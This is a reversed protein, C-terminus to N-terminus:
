SEKQSLQEHLYKKYTWMCKAFIYYTGQTPSFTQVDETESLLLLDIMGAVVQQKSRHVNISSFNKFVQNDYYIYNCHIHDNGADEFWSKNEDVRKVYDNHNCMIFMEPHLSLANKINEDDTAVFIACEKENKVVSAYELAFKYIDDYTYGSLSLIDTGRLQLGVVSGKFLRSKIKQTQCLIADSIKVIKFFEDFYYPINSLVYPPLIDVHYYIFDHQEIFPGLSTEDEIERPNIVRVNPKMLPTM